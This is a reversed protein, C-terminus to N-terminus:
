DQALYGARACVCLGPTCRVHTLLVLEKRIPKEAMAVRSQHVGGTWIVWLELTLRQITAYRSTRYKKPQLIEKGTRWLSMNLHM